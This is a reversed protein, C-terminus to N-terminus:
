GNWALKYWDGITRIKATGYESSFYVFDPQHVMAFHSNAPFTADLFLPLENKNCIRATLRVHHRIIHWRALTKLFLFVLDDLSM